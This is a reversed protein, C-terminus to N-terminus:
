LFPPTHIQLDTIGTVGHGTTEECGKEDRLSSSSLSPCEQVYLPLSKVPQDAFYLKDELFLTTRGIKSMM